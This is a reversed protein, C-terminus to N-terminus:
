RKKKKALGASIAKGSPFKSAADLDEAAIRRWLLRTEQGEKDLKM